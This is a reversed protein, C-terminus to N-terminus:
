HCYSNIELNCYIASMTFIHKTTGVKHRSNYSEKRTQNFYIWFYYKVNDSFTFLRYYLYSSNTKGSRQCILSTMIFNIKLLKIFIAYGFDALQFSSLCFFFQIIRKPIDTYYKLFYFATKYVLYFIFAYTRANRYTVYCTVSYFGM